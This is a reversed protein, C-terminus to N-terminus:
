CLMREDIWSRTPLCFAGGIWSGNLCFEKMLGAEMEFLSRMILGIHQIIVLYCWGFGRNQRSQAYAQVSHPKRNIILKLRDM